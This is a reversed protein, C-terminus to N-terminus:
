VDFFVTENDGQLHVDLTYVSGLYAQLLHNNPQEKTWKELDTTLAKTEAKDGAVAKDQRAQISKILPDSFPDVKPKSAATQASAFTATLIFFSVVLRSIKIM